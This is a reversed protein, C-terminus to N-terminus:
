LMQNPPIIHSPDKEVSTKKMSSRELIRVSLIQGGMSKKLDQNSQLIKNKKAHASIEPSLFENEYVEHLLMRKEPNYHLM